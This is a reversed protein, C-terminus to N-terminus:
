NEYIELLSEIAFTQPRPVIITSVTEATKVGEEVSKGLYTAGAGGIAFQWYDLGLGNGSDIVFAKLDNKWAAAAATFAATFDIGSGALIYGGDAMGAMINGLKPTSALNHSSEIAAAINSAISSMGKKSVARHLVKGKGSYFALNVTGAGVTIAINTDKPHHYLKQAGLWIGYTEDITEIDCIEIQIQKGNREYNHLGVLNSFDLDISANPVCLVLQDIRQSRDVVALLGLLVNDLKNSSWNNTGGYEAANVGIYYSTGIVKILPSKDDYDSGVEKLQAPTLQHICSPIVIPYHNQTGVVKLFANGFDLIIINSM